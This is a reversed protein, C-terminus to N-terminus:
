GSHTYSILRVPINLGMSLWSTVGIFLTVAATAGVRLAVGVSEVWEVMGGEPAPWGEAGLELAPLLVLTVLVRNEVVPPPPPINEGRSLPSCLRLWELKKLRGLMAVGPPIPTALSFNSVLRFKDAM